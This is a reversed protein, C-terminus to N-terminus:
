EARKRAIKVAVIVILLILIVNVIVIAWIFWNGGSLNGISFGTFGSFFGKYPSISVSIPQEEVNGDAVAQITFEKNGSVTKDPVLTITVQGSEGPNLSLSELSLSELEAWSEYNNLM